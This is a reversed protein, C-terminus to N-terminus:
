PNGGTFEPLHPFVNLGYCNRKLLVVSCDHVVMFEWQRCLLGLIVELASTTRHDTVLGQIFLDM